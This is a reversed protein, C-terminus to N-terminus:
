LTEEEQADLLPGYIRLALDRFEPTFPEAGRLSYRLWADAGEGRSHDSGEWIKRAKELAVELPKPALVGAAFAASSEPFFPLVRCLGERYLELLESLWIRAQEPPVVGFRCLQESGVLLTECGAEERHACAVLHAM